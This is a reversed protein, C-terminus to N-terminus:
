WEYSLTNGALVNWHCSAQKHNTRIHLMAALEIVLSTSNICVNQANTSLTCVVLRMGLGVTCVVLRMGLSVTCVVLRMGLGVTCVVLRMGLGVTCVVLRMGLGVTCVM